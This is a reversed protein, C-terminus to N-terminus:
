PNLPSEPPCDDPCRHAQEGIDEGGGDLPAAGGIPPLIDENRENVPVLIAHVRLQTDMGYYIRIRACDPKALLADLVERDFTECRCLVNKEKYPEALITDKNQRYLTTMAIAEPLSIFQSM